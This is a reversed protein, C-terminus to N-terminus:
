RLQARRVRLLDIASASRVFPDAVGRGSDLELAAIAAGGSEAILADGHLPRASDLAALDRLARSDEPRAPRITLFTETTTPSLM